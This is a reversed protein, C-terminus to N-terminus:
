LMIRLRVGYFIDRSAYYWYPMFGPMEIAPDDSRTSGPDKEQPLSHMYEEIESRYWRFANWVNSNPYEHDGWYPLYQQNTLNFVDIYIESEIFRTKFIIKTLRADLRWDARWQKNEHLQPLGDPNWTFTPGEKRHYLLSLSFDELPHLIGIRPGFRDPTQLTVNAKLVPRVDAADQDYVIKQPFRTQDEYFRYVFDALTTMEIRYNYSAWARFFANGSVDLLLELGRRDISIGNALTQYTFGDLYRYSQSTPLGDIDHYYGIFELSAINFLNQRMGFEFKTTKLPELKPNGLFKVRGKTLTSENILYLNAAQQWRHFQGFRFYVLAHRVRYSMSLRPSFVGKQTTKHPLQTLNEEAGGQLYLSYPGAKKDRINENLSMMKGTIMYDYRLGVDLQFEGTFYHEQIYSSFKWPQVFAYWHSGQNTSPDISWYQMHLNDTQASLGVKLAQNQSIEVELDGNLSHSNSFSDNMRVLCSSMRFYGTLDRFQTPAFGWPSEDYWYEGIKIRAWNQWYEYGSWRPDDSAIREQIEMESGIRGDELYRLGFSAGPILRTQRMTLENDYESHQWSYRVKYFLNDSFRHSLSLGAWMRTQIGPIQCHPYWFKNGTHPQFANNSIYGSLNPGLLNENLDLGYQKAYVFQTVIDIGSSLPLSLRASSLHDMYAERATVGVYDTQETSYAAYFRAKPLFPLPGSLSIQGVYDPIEGDAFVADDDTVKSLDAQLKDSRVLERLLTLNDPSRHRWLYLALNEYPKGYHPMGPRIMGEYGLRYNGDADVLPQGNDDVVVGSYKFWGPFFPNPEGDSGFGTFAGKAKHTFPAVIPSNQGYANPGSYKLAPPSYKVDVALSFRNRGIKPIARVIGSSLDGYRVDFAGPDINVRELAITPLKYLPQGSIPESLVIDDFFFLSHAMDANRIKPRDDALTQDISAHSAIMSALDRAPLHDLSEHVGSLKMESEIAKVPEFDSDRPTLGLMRVLNENEHLTLSKPAKNEFSDHLVAIHYVDPRLNEFSYEGRPSTVTQFDAGGRLFVRAGSIPQQTQSNQVVGSISGYGWAFQLGTLLSLVLHVYRNSLM